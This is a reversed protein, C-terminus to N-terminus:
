ALGPPIRPKVKKPAPSLMEARVTDLSLPDRGQRASYASEGYRVWRAVSFLCGMMLCVGNACGCWTARRRCCPCRRRSSPAAPIRYRKHASASGWRGWEDLM